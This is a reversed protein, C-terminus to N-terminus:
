DEDLAGQNWWTGEKVLEDLLGTRVAVGRNNLKTKPNMRRIYERSSSPPVGWRAGAMSRGVFEVQSGPKRPWKPDMGTDRLRDEHELLYTRQEAFHDPLRKVLEVLHDAVKINSTEISNLEPCAALAEQLWLSVALLLRAQDAKNTKPKELLEVGFHFAVLDEETVFRSAKKKRVPQLEPQLHEEMHELFLLFRQFESSPTNRQLCIPCRRWFKREEEKAATNAQETM